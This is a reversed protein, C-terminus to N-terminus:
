NDSLEPIQIFDLTDRIFHGVEASFQKAGYYNLHQSNLFDAKKLEDHLVDNNKNFLIINYKKAIEIIRVEYESYAKYNKYDKLAEKWVPPNIFIVKVNNEAALLITMEFYKQQTANFDDTLSTVKTWNSEDDHTHNELYGNYIRKINRTPIYEIGLLRKFLTLFLYKEKVTKFFYSFDFGNAQAYLQYKDSFNNILLPTYQGADIPRSFLIPDTGIILVEPIIKKTHIIHKLLFYNEYAGSHYIGLNYTSLGTSDEIIKSDLADAIHSDGIILIKTKDQQKFFEKRSDLFARYDSPRVFQLFVFIANDLFFVAIVFFLIRLLFSKM